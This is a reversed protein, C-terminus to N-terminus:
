EQLHLDSMRCRPCCLVDECYSRGDIVDHVERRRLLEWEPVVAGCTMCTFSDAALRRRRRGKVTRTDM